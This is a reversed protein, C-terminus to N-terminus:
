NLRHADLSEQCCEALAESAEESFRVCPMTGLYIFGIHGMDNLEDINSLTAPTVSAMVTFPIALRPMSDPHCDRLERYAAVISRAFEIDEYDM